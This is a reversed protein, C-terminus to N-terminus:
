FQGFYLDDAVDKEFSEKRGVKVVYKAELLFNHNRSKNLIKKCCFFKM